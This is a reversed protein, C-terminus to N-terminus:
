PPAQLTRSILEDLASLSFPKPLFPFSRETLIDLYHPDGSTLIAPVGLGAAHEALSNGREDSMLCDIVALDIVEDALLCRAQEASAASLVNHGATRLFELVVAQVDTDDEVVLIRPVAIDSIL